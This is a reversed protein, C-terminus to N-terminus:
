LKNTKLNDYNGEVWSKKEQKHKAETRKQKRKWKIKHIRKKKKKGSKRWNEQVQTM